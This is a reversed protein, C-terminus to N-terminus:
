PAPAEKKPAIRTYCPNCYAVFRQGDVLLFQRPPGTLCKACRYNQQRMQDAFLEMTAIYKEPPRIPTGLEEPLLGIVPPDGPTM